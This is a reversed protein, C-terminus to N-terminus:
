SLDKGIGLACTQHVSHCFGKATEGFAFRLPFGPSCTADAGPSEEVPPFYCNALFFALATFYCGIILNKISSGPTPLTRLHFNSTENSEDGQHSHNKRGEKVAHGAIIEGSTRGGRAASYGDPAFIYIPTGTEENFGAFIRVVLGKRLIINV